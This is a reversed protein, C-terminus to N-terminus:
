ECGSTVMVTVFINGVNEVASEVAVELEVVLVGLPKQGKEPHGNM